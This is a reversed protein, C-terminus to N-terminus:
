LARVASFEGSEVCGAGTSATWRGEIGFATARVESLTATTSLGDSCAYTAAQARMLQGTQQYSGAMRCAAGNPQDIDLTFQRTASANFVGLSVNQKSRYNNAPNTCGSVNVAVGGIYTGTLVVPKMTQREIPKSVAVSNVSYTLMGGTASTPVFKATGVERFGRASPTWPGGFYSGSADYLPGAFEGNAGAVLEGSYWIQENSPGYIFFTAFIFGQSQVFNVGWGSETPNWWLDTYDTAAAAPKMILALAFATALACSRVCSCAGSRDKIGM